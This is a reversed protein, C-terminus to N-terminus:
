ARPSGGRVNVVGSSPIDEVLGEIDSIECCNGGEDGGHFGAKAANSMQTVLEPPGGDLKNLFVWGSSQRAATSWSRILVTFKGPFNQRAHL